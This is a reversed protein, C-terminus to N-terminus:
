NKLINAEQTTRWLPGSLSSSQPFRHFSSLLHWPCTLMLLPRSHCLRSPPVNYYFPQVRYSFAELPSFHSFLLCLMLRSFFFVKWLCLYSCTSIVYQYIAHLIVWHVTSSLHVALSLDAQNERVSGCSVLFELPVFFISHNFETSQTGSLVVPHPKHIPLCLTEKRNSPKQDCIEYYLRLTPEWRIIGLWDGPSSISCFCFCM